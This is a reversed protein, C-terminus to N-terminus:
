PRQEPSKSITFPSLFQNVLVFNYFKGSGPRLMQVCDRKHIGYSYTTRKLEQVIQLKFSMSYDKSNAKVHTEKWSISEKTYAIESPVSFLIGRSLL